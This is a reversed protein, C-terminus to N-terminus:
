SRTAHLWIRWSRDTAPMPFRAYDYFAIKHFGAAALLAAIEDQLWLYLELTESFRAQGGDREVDIDYALTLRRTPAELRPSIRQVVHAAGPRKERTEARPPDALAAAGNWLDAILPAGRRLREALATLLHPMDTPDVYNLVHFFAAAADFREPPLNQVPRHELRVNGLGAAGIKRSLIAFFDPDIEIAVLEKVMRALLLSQNGTGAGLELLRIEAMDAVAAMRAFDAVDKGYDKDAYMLDYHEAFPRPM